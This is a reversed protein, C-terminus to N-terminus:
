RRLPSSGAKAARRAAWLATMRASQQARWEASFKVGKANQNGLHAASMKQRTEASHSRGMGRRNGLLSQSIKSRTVASSKAGIRAQRLKERHEASLRKGKHGKSIKARVVLSVIRGATGEGGETMNFLPGRHGRGISRILASEIEFAQPETLNDRIKVIPIQAPDCRSFLVALRRNYHKRGLWKHVAM